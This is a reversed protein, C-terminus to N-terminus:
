SRTRLPWLLNMPGAGRGMPVAHELAAAVYEKAAQVQEADSRGPHLVLGALLASSFACGTGHTSSTEVRRGPLWAEEEATLLFDDPRDLHGGTVVVKLAPNGLMAAQQRLRKAAVPVDAAGAVTQGTLMALEALNPTIWGARGLLNERLAAEGAADLLARGSSSRWVPDVVVPIDPHSRCFAGAALVNEATALMGTKMGAVPLDAALCNLTAAVTAAPIAEVAAVGTTSQVTLGTICSVGYGGLAAFVALDATIGAGSSPDFGAVTLLVPPAASQLAAASRRIPNEPTKM